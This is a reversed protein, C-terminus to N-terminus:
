KKYIDSFSFTNEPVSKKYVNKFTNNYLSKISSLNNRTTNQLYDTIKHSKHLQLYDFNEFGVIKIPQFELKNIKFLSLKDSFLDPKKVILPIISYDIITNKCPTQNIKKGGSSHIEYRGGPAIMLEKKGQEYSHGWASNDYMKGEDKERIKGSETCGMCKYNDPYNCDKGYKHQWILLTIWNKDGTIDIFDKYKLYCSNNSIPMLTKIDRYQGCDGLTEPVYLSIPSQLKLYEIILKKIYNSKFLSKLPSFYSASVLNTLGLYNYEKLILLILQYVFSYKRYTGGDVTMFQTPFTSDTETLLKIISEACFTKGSASPGLGLILRPKVNNEGFKLKFFKSDNEWIGTINDLNTGTFEFPVQPKNIKEPIVSETLVRLIFATSNMEKIILPSLINFCDKKCDVWTKEIAHLDIIALNITSVLDPSNFNFLKQILKKKIDEVNKVNESHIIVNELYNKKDNETKTRIEVEKAPTISGGKKFKNKLKTKNKNRIKKIKIKKTKM